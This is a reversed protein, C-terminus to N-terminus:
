EAGTRRREYRWFWLFAVITLVLFVILCIGLENVIM